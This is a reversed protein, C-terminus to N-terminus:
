TEILIGARPSLFAGVLSAIGPAACFFFGNKNGINNYSSATLSFMYFLLLILIRGGSGSGGRSSMEKKQEVSVLLLCALWAKNPAFVM